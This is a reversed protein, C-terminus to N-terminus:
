NHHTKCHAEKPEEQKPSETNGRNTHSKKKKKLNPFNEMVAKEFLNQIGQEEEEGEPIGIIRINKQKMNDKMERLGEKNKRLRNEKEQEGPHKKRSQGGARQDM